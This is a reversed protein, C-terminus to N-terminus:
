VVKHELRPNHSCEYDLHVFAREVGDLSELRHQLSEGIDHAEELQMNMPLVIDVEVLFNNGFHFARVTDIKLIKEHHNLSVWTLKSIFEPQATYGTLMKIHERGTRWWNIVIYVSMAMAGLPDAYGMWDIGAATQFNGSGLYGCIIAVTNSVVDNRHDQALAQMVSSNVKRCALWLLLKCVVTGGSILLTVVDVVPLSSETTGALSVVQMVSEKIIELSAFAMVVAIIIVAVSELKTRGQPYSYPDRARMAKTAWLMIVGSFIDLASDVLSSIIAISGSLTSAVIKGVVLIINMVFSLKSLLAAKKYMEASTDQPLAADGEQSISEYASILQDQTSYYSRADKSSYQRRRLEQKKSMFIDM